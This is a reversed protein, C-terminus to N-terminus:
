LLSEVLDAIREHAKGDIKYFSNVLYRRRKEGLNRRVKKDTLVKTVVGTLDDNKDTVVVAERYKDKKSLEAIPGRKLGDIVIIDKDLMLGEVDATTGFSILLDSDRLVAYLFEKGPKQVVEVNTLKLSRAVSEYEPKHKEDPHLKIVVKKINKVKSLQALCKRIYSFYENKGVIKYEVLATPLITVTRKTKDKEKKTRHRAIEDFFPSGTVFISEKKIGLKLWREREEWGWAALAVNRLFEDRVILFRGVYGHSSHVVKKDLKYAVGLLLPEYFGGLATLYIVKIGYKEVIKKFTLYYTILVTMMEKSFLFNLENRLFRWYSRGDFTFLKEKKEESIEKWKRNLEHALRKSEKVTKPDVYSYLLDPFELLGRLSNKSLPDCFLVLPKAKREKLVDVVEHFGAPKLEGGKRAVQNTYGLFLVKKEGGRPKKFSAIFWKVGESARMGKRLGFQALKLKLSEFRTPTRGEKVDSEIEVLNKFPKPLYEQKFLPEFFYWVPIGDIQFIENFKKGDIKRESWKEIVTLIQSNRM